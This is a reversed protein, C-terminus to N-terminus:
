IDLDSFRDVSSGRLTAYREGSRSPTSFTFASYIRKREPTSFIALGAPSPSSSERSSPAPSPIKEPGEETEVLQEQEKAEPEEKPPDVPTAHDEPPPSQEYAKSLDALPMVTLEYCRVDAAVQSLRESETDKVPEADVEETVRPLSPSRRARSPGVNGNRKSTLIRKVKKEVVARGTSSTSTSDATLGRKKAEKSEKQKKSPPPIHLKTALVNTKRKKTTPDTNARAGTTPNINEKDPCYVLLPGPPPPAVAIPIPLNVDDSETSKSPSPPADDKFVVFSRVASAM